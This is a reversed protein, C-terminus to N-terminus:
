GRIDLGIKVVDLSAAIKKVDSTSCPAKKGAYVAMTSNV